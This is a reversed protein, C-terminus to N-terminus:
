EKMKVRCLLSSAGHVGLNLAVKATHMRIDSLLYLITILTNLHSKIQTCEMFDLFDSM